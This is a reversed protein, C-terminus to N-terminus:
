TLWEDRVKAPVLLRSPLCTTAMPAFGEIRFAMVSGGKSLTFVQKGTALLTELPQTNAMDRLRQGLSMGAKRHATELTEMAKWLMSADSGLSAVEMLVQWDSRDETRLSREGLWNQLNQRNARACGARRLATAASGIGGQIRIWMGLNAKWRRQLERLRSAADGLIEDALPVILDGGGATRMVIVHGPELDDINVRAFRREPPAHPDLMWVPRDGGEPLMVAYGDALVALRAPVPESPDAEGTGSLSMSVSGWDVTPPEVEEGRGVASRISPVPELKLGAGGRSGELVTIRPATDRYWAWKLVTIESARPSTLVYEHDRYWYLPGIVVLRALPEALAMDQLSLVEISECGHLTGLYDRVPKAYETMPLLVGTPVHGGLGEISSIAELLPAEDSELLRRGAELARVGIKAADDGGYVRLPALGGELRDILPGVGNLPHSFPLPVTTLANKAKRAPYLFERWGTDDDRERCLRTLEFVAQSFRELEAHDIARWQLRVTAALKQYNDARALRVYRM